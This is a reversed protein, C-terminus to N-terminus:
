VGESRARVPGSDPFPRVKLLLTCYPVALALMALAFGLAELNKPGEALIIRIAATALAGAVFTEERLAVIRESLRTRPGPLPWGLIDCVRTWIGRESSSSFVASLWLGTVPLLFLVTPFDRFRPQLVLGWSVVMAALAFLFYLAGASAVGQLGASGVRPRLISLVRHLTCPPQDPAPELVPAVVRWAFAFQLPILLWSFVSGYSYHLFLGSLVILSGSVQALVAQRFQKKGALRGQLQAGTLLVAAVGVSLWFWRPWGPYRVGAERPPHKYERDVTFLGWYAGVSGETQAKWPQDFSEIINYDLKNSRALDLVGSLFARQEHIGPVAGNRSRGFSPWGIEGIAIAKRPFQRQLANMAHRIRSQVQDVPGPDYEWYPLIHVTVIDVLEAIAPHDMWDEWGEAYSVPQNVSARVRQLYEALQAPTLDGRMLNENGVIVRVVTQPYRNALEILASIEAENTARNSDLWAGLWVTLGYKKAIAPIEGLVGTGSYVRINNVHRSLLALDSEIQQRSPFIGKAPDQGRRFPSYSVSELTDATFSTDLTDRNVLYWFGGSLVASLLLLNFFKFM